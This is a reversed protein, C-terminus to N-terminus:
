HDLRAAIGFESAMDRLRKDRSWLRVGPSTLATALLHVDVYGVGRAILDRQDIMQLVEEPDAVHVAPLESLALMWQSRKRIHGLAIEGLVFPHM